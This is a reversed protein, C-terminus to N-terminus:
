FEKRCMPCSPRPWSNKKDAKALEFSEQAATHICNSHFAHGCPLLIMKDGEKHCELCIPCAEAKMRCSIADRM